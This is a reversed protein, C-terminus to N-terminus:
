ATYSGSSTFTMITNGGSTTVTPSGTTTGTYNATAVSIIVVGSGGNGGAYYTSNIFGGGGGGGGTNATGATGASSYTGGNGGGGTGGTGYTLGDYTNNGGGGGGGAYTVASGTISSSTGNGGNGPVTSSPTGGIASSGGGGGPNQTIGNAGAYGQGSTGSGATGSAYGGGGGSGGSLGNAAFGGGGGGAIVSFGFGTSNTGSSGTNLGGSAGGNGGSGVVFSYTTGSSLTTTGSLLGGAGGGGGSASGGGGGGAVILYSVSYSFSKWIPASSGQSTLVQGSTGTSSNLAITGTLAINPTSLLSTASNYTFSSSAGLSGSNNYQVQTNSGAPNASVTLDGSGLISNTNITKINTGSVLTAQKNNFTNWDTSTLYGNTSTNAAAMSIAPTTGGSSVVPATGSVSTVTGVSVSGGLATVNGNITISSNTLAGNPISSFNTGVFSPAAGSAVSQNLSYSANWTLTNTGNNVGTGGNAPSVQGVINGSQVSLISKNVYIAGTSSNVYAVTGLKIAYGTPPITNQYFGASYPSLYLTDGVTYSGTNVGQVLGITTVYGATGTPIAQNALGIVNGTTLSNAIALAINPYTYGSSTSTVYVPQGINITSGTNNYVKLQIEEGIHLTNNTVDNYYALSNVTSDYWLRGSSYSPASISAFDEYSNGGFSVKGNSDLNVSKSAPYDGWVSLQAGSFNVLSGANSSALVTTRALTGSGVTGIGVEWDSGGNAYIGYYTTNGNGIASGFSQYGTVAGALTLTGTGSTTSVEQVRDKIILAM